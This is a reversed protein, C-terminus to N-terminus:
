KAQSLAVGGFVLATKNGQLFSAAPVPPTVLQGSVNLEYVQGDPETSLILM